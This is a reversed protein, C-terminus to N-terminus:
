RRVVQLDLHRAVVLAADRVCQEDARACHELVTALAMPFMREDEDARWDVITPENDAPVFLDPRTAELSPHVAVHSRPAALVGGFIHASM